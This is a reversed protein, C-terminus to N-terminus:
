NASINDASPTKVAIRLIKTGCFNRAIRYEIIIKTTFIFSFFGMLIAGDRYSYFISLTCFQSQNKLFCSLSFFFFFFFFIKLGVGIGIRQQPAMKLKYGDATFEWELTYGHKMLIILFRMLLIVFVAILLRDLLKIMINLEM